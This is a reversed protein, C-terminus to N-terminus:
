KDNCAHFLAAQTFVAESAIYSAWSCRYVCRVHALRKGVKWKIIHHICCRKRPLRSASESLLM